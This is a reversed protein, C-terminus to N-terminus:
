LEVSVLSVTGHLGLQPRRHFGAQVAPVRVSWTGDEYSLGGGRGGPVALVAGGAAGLIVGTGGLALGGILQGRDSDGGLAAGLFAGVGGLVLEGLVSMVYAGTHDRPIATNLVAGAPPGGAILLLAAGEPSNEDDAYPRDRDQDAAAIILGGLLGGVAAGITSGALARSFKIGEDDLSLPSPPRPSLPSVSRARSPAPGGSRVSHTDPPPVALRPPATTLITGHESQGQAPSALFPLGLIAIASLLSRPSVSDAQPIRAHIHPLTSTHLCLVDVGGDMWVEMGSRLKRLEYSLSRLM